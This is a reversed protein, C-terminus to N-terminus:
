SRTLVCSSSEVLRGAVISTREREGEISTLMGSTGIAIGSTLGIMVAASVGGMSKESGASTV